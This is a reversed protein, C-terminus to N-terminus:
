VCKVCHGRMLVETVQGIKSMSKKSPVPLDVDNLCTVTGCDVCVFHPHHGRDPHSADRIEFRWFHDGLETRTLLGADVLDNLNRFVTAKDFGLPILDASIEAHTAPSKAAQLWRIVATRAATTRLGAAVLMQRTKAIAEIDSKASM